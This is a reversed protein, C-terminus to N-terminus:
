LLQMHRRTIEIAKRTEEIDEEKTKGNHDLSMEKALIAKEYVEKAEAYKNTNHLVIGLNHLLVAYVFRFGAHDGLVAEMGDIGRKLVKYGKSFDEVKSLTFAIYVASWAEKTIKRELNAGNISQLYEFMENLYEIGFDRIIVRERSSDASTVSTLQAVEAITDKSVEICRTISDVKDDSSLRPNDKYLEAAIRFLIISRLFSKDSGFSEGLTILLNPDVPLGTLLVTKVGRIAKMAKNERGLQIYCEAKLLNVGFQDEEDNDRHIKELCSIAEFFKDQKALSHAQEEFVLNRKRQMEPLRNEVPELPRRLVLIPSRNLDPSSRVHSRIAKYSDSINDM